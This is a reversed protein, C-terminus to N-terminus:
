HSNPPVGHRAGAQLQHYRGHEVWPGAQYQWPYSLPMLRAWEEYFPMAVEDVNIVFVHDDGHANGRTMNWSGCWVSTPVVTRVGFPNERAFHGGVLFKHHMWPQTGFMRPHAVVRYRAMHYERPEAVVPVGHILWGPAYFPPSPTPVERPAALTGGANWLMYQDYLADLEPTYDRPRRKTAPARVYAEQQMLVISLPRENLAVLVAPSRLFAVCGLVVEYQGIWEIVRAQLDTTAQFYLHYRPEEATSPLMPSLLRRRRRWRM